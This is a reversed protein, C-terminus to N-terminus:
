RTEYLRVVLRYRDGAGVCTQLTMSSRSQAAYAFEGRTPLVVRWWAVAFRHIRGHTDAYTVSMGRRLGGRLYLDHLKRFPGGAHALLYVNGSGACGWRYVAMDPARTRSCPFWAVARDLGLAASWVHNTGVFAPRRVPAVPGAARSPRTAVKPRTPERHASPRVTPEPGGLPGAARDAATAPATTLPPRTAPVADRSPSTVPPPVTRAVRAAPAAVPSTPRGASVATAAVPVVATVVVEIALIFALARFTRRTPRRSTSPM